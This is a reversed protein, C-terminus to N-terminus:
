EDAIQRPTASQPRRATIQLIGGRYRAELDVDDPLAIVRQFPGGFRERRYCM